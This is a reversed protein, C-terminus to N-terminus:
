ARTLVEATPSSPLLLRPRKRRPAAAGEEEGTAYHVTVETLTADSTRVVCSQGARWVHCAAVRADEDAKPGTHTREAVDALMHRHAGPFVRLRIEGRAAGGEFVLPSRTKTVGDCHM